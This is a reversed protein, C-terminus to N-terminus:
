PRKSRQAAITAAKSLDLHGPVSVIWRRCKEAMLQNLPLDAPLDDGIVLLQTPSLPFSITSIEAGPKPRWLLVAGDGTALRLAPRVHWPWRELGLRALRTAGEVHRSLLLRDGMSLESDETQGDTRLLRAFTRVDAQDAYRGRELHMDLFAILADREEFTTIHAYRMKRIASLGRSEILAFEAELDHTLVAPEYVYSVVTANEISSTVGRGHQVDIVEVRNRRDAWARIYGKPVMHPRKVKM